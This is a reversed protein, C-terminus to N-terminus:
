NWYREELYEFFATTNPEYYLPEFLQDNHIITKFPSDITELLPNYIKSRAPIYLSRGVEYYETM